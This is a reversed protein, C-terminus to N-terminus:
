QWMDLSLTAVLRINDLIIVSKMIYHNHGYCSFVRLYFFTAKSESRGNYMKTYSLLMVAKPFRYKAKPKIEYSLFIPIICIFSDAVLQM